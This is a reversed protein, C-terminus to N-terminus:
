GATSASSQKGLLQRRPAKQNNQVKPGEQMMCLGAQRADQQEHTEKQGAPLPLASSNM